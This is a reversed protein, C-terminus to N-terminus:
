AADRLDSTSCAEVTEDLEDLNACLAEFAETSHLYRRTETASCALESLARAITEDFQELDDFQHQIGDPSTVKRNLTEGRAQEVAKRAKMKHTRAAGGAVEALREALEEEIAFYVRAQGLQRSFKRHLEQYRGLVVKIANARSGLETRAADLDRAMQMRERYVRHGFLAWGSLGGLVAVISLFTDMAHTRFTTLIRSREGCDVGEVDAGAPGM